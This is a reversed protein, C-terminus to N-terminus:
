ATASRAMQRQFDAKDFHGHSEAILADEGIRWEEYGKICVRQGTGGPGTFTGTLTWHFESGDGVVIIDDLSIQLDPFATMFQQVFVEIADRGVSPAAGNATLSGGPSFHGAVSAANQSCWASAYHEAFERLPNLDIGSERADNGPLTDM